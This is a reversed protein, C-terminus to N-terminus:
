TAESDSRFPVNNEVGAQTQDENASVTEPHTDAKSNSKKASNVKIEEKVQGERASKIEVMFITALQAIPSEETEAVKVDANNTCESHEQDCVQDLLKTLEVEFALDAIDDQNAESDPFDQVENHDAELCSNTSGVSDGIDESCSELQLYEEVLEEIINIGFLSHDETPHKMAEYINFQVLTDGMEALGPDDRCGM